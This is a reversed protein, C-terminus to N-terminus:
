CDWLILPPPKVGKGLAYWRPLANFMLNHIRLPLLFKGVPKLSTLWRQKQFSIIRGPLLEAVLLKCYEEVKPLDGFEVWFTIKHEDINSTLLYELRAKHKQGAPSDDTVFLALIALLRQTTPHDRGPRPGRLIVTSGVAIDYM